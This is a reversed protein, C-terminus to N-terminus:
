DLWDNPMDFIILMIFNYTEFDVKRERYKKQLFSIRRFDVGYRERIVNLMM